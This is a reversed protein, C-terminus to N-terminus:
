SRRPHDRAFRVDDGTQHWVGCAFPEVDLDNLANRILLHFVSCDSPVEVPPTAFDLRNLVANSILGGHTLRRTHVDQAALMSQAGPIVVVDNGSRSVDKLLTKIADAPNIRRGAFTM